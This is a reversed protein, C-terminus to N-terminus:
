FDGLLEVWQARNLGKKWEYSARIETGTQIEEITTSRGDIFITTTSDLQLILPLKTAQLITVQKSAKDIKQVKGRIERLINSTENTSATVATLPLLIWAIVLFWVKM